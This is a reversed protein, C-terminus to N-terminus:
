LSSFLCDTNEESNNQSPYLRSASFISLTEADRSTNHVRSCERGAGSRGIETVTRVGYKHILDNGIRKEFTALGFTPPRPIRSIKVRQLSAPSGSGSYSKTGLKTQRVIRKLSGIVGRRDPSLCLSLGFSLRISLSFLLTFAVKKTISLFGPRWRLRMASNTPLLIGVM